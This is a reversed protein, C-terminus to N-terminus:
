RGTNNFEEFAKGKEDATKTPDNMVEELKPVSDKQQVERIKKNGKNALFYWGEAFLDWARLVVKDIFFSAAL